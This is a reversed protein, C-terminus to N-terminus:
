PLAPAVVDVVEIETPACISSVSLPYLRKDAARRFATDGSGTVSTKPIYIRRALGFKNAMELIATYYKIDDTLTMKETGPVGSAAAAVVINSGGWSLRMSQMTDEALAAQIAIAKGEVTEGVPTSQEEITVTTTSTDVNLKFGEDTAGASFWPDPWDGIDQSFLPVDDAVNPEVDGLVWPALRLVANGVVVNNADYLIGSM